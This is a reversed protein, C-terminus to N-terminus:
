RVGAGGVGQGAKDADRGEGMIKGEDMIDVEDEGDGGEEQRGSCSVQDATNVLNVHAMEHVGHAACRMLLVGRLSDFVPIDLCGLTAQWGAKAGRVLKNCWSQGGEGGQQQPALPSREADSTPPPCPNPPAPADPAPPPAAAPGSRPGDPPPGKVSKRGMKVLQPLLKLAEGPESQAVRAAQEWRNFSCFRLMTFVTSIVTYVIALWFLLYHAAIILYKSFLAQKGPPCQFDQSSAKDTPAAALLVRMAGQWDPALLHRGAKTSDESATQITNSTCVTLLWPKIYELLLSIVGLSLLEEKLKSLWLKSALGSGGFRHSLWSLFGLVLEWFVAIAMFLLFLLSVGFGTTGESMLVDGYEVKGM